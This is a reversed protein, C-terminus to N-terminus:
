RIPKVGTRAYMQRKGTHEFQYEDPAAPEAPGRVARIAAMVANRDGGVAAYIKNGSLWVTGNPKTLSAIHTILATEDSIISTHEASMNVPIEADIDPMDRYPTDTQTDTRDQWHTVYDDIQYYARLVYYTIWPQWRRYALRALAYVGVVATIWTIWDGLTMM